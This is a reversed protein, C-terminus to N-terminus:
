APSVPGLLLWLKLLTNQGLVGAAGGRAPVVSGGCGQSPTLVKQGHAVLAAM